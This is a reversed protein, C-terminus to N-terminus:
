SDSGRKSFAVGEIEVLLEARCVDAVAYIVPVSGFRRECIEKCRHFDEQRKLYVRIKALDRLGAGANKVGHFGFNERSILKEINEITQETQRQINDPHRSVSHVVSATGSLWTTVYDDMVLAVGRSFKPSQPSFRPHYAYAPTQQPNELPLLFADPRRTELAVCSAMLNTGQIGIGTSAPYIGQPISPETLSCQFQIDRYFDTRARNLEKYRQVGDLDPQTIGGLYFWTRVVREYRSGAEKLAAAMRKLVDMAQHYVPQNPHGSRIESCYIWRTGQYNVATIHPAFREIQVEPGGIAWAELALAAGCCPPQLVFNTAPRSGRYSEGVIQDCVALDASDRLFLTQSTVTMPHRQRSLIQQQIELVERAQEEVSGVGQPVLMLSVRALSGL